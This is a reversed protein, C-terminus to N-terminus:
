YRIQTLDGPAVVLIGQRGGPHVTRRLRGIGVSPQAVGRGRLRRRRRCLVAGGGQHRRGGGEHRRGPVVAPGARRSGMSSLGADRVARGQQVLLVADDTLLTLTRWHDEGM